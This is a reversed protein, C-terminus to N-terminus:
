QCAQDHHAKAINRRGPEDAAQVALAALTLSLSLLLSILLLM